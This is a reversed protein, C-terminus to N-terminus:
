GGRHSLRFRFASPRCGFASLPSGFASPVYAAVHMVILGATQDAGANPFTVREKILEASGLTLLPNTSRLQLLELAADRSMAIDSPAPKLAPDALLPRMADWKAGNYTTPM